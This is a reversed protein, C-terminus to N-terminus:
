AGAAGEDTVVEEVLATFVPEAQPDATAGPIWEPQPGTTPNQPTTSAM